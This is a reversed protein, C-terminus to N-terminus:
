GRSDWSVPTTSITRTFWRPHSRFSGSKHNLPVLIERVYSKSSATGCAINTVLSKTPAPNFKM